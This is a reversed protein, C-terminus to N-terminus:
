RSDTNQRTAALLSPTALHQQRPATSRTVASCRRFSINTRDKFCVVLRPLLRIHIFSYHCLAYTLSPAQTHLQQVVKHLPQAVCPHERGMGWQRVSQHGPTIFSKNDMHKMGFTYEPPRDALAWKTPFYAAPGPSRSKETFIHRSAMSYKPRGEM